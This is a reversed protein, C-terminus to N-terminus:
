TTASEVHPENTGCATSPGAGPFGTRGMPALEAHDAHKGTQYWYAVSSNDDGTLNTGPLDWPAPNEETAEHLVTQTKEQRYYAHFRGVDGLPARVSPITTISVGAEAAVQKITVRRQKMKM